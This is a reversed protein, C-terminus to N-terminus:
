RCPQSFSVLGAAHCRVLAAQAQADYEMDADFATPLAAYLGALDTM